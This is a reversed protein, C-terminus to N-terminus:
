HELDSALQFTSSPYIKGRTQQSSLLGAAQNITAGISSSSSGGLDPEQIYAWYITESDGITV